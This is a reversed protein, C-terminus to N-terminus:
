PAYNPLFGPRSESPLLPAELQDGLEGGIVAEKFLSVEVRRIKQMEEESLGASRGSGEILAMEAATAKGDKIAANIAARTAIKAAERPPIDLMDGLISLEELETDTLVGDEYATQYSELLFSGYQDPHLLGDRILGYDVPLPNELVHMRGNIESHEKGEALETAGSSAEEECRSIGRIRASSM